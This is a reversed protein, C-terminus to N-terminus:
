WSVVKAGSYPNGHVPKGQASLASRLQSVAASQGSDLTSLEAVSVAQQVAPWSMGKLLLLMTATTVSRDGGDDDHLYVYNGGAAHSSMFSTLTRLQALTPATGEALVLNLYGLHLSSATVQEEVSPGTLNILGDVKYSTSLAELDDDDPVGGIDMGAVITKGGPLAALPDLGVERAAVVHKTALLLIALIVVVLAERALLKRPLRGGGGIASRWQPSRQPVHIDSM